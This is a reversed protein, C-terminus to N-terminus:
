FNLVKRLVKPFQVSIAIPFRFEIDVFDEFKRMNKKHDFHNSRKKSPSLVIALATFFFATAFFAGAFFAAALFGALFAAFFFRAAYAQM